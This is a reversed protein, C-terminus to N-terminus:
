DCGNGAERPFAFLEEAAASATRPAPMGLDKKRSVFIFIPLLFSFFISLVTFLVAQNPDCSEFLHYCAIYQFVATVIGLVCVAMIFALMPLLLRLIQIDSLLEIQGSMVLGFVSAFMWIYFLVVVATMAISLGLLLKRRNRIKGKAKYQYQDSICGLMWADGFPIWSLWPHRIGRRKAVTYMGLSRLVYMAIGCAISILMVTMWIGLFVSMSGITDMGPEIYGYYENM